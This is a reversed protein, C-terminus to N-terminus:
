AKERKIEGKPGIQTVECIKVKIVAFKARITLEFSTHKKGTAVGEIIRKSSLAVEKEELEKLIRDYDEGRDILETDGNIQYGLLNETDMFSLSIRPNIRLNQWTKGITYDILYVFGGEIKLFFKPAANPRGEWDSTAVSIFERKKLLEKIEKLLM